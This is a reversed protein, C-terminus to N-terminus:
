ELFNVRFIFEGDNFPIRYICYRAGSDDYPAATLRFLGNEDPLLTLVKATLAGDQYYDECVTLSDAPYSPNLAISFESLTDIATLSGVDYHEGEPYWKAQFSGAQVSTLLNPSASFGVTLHDMQRLRYKWQLTDGQYCSLMVTENAEATVQYYLSEAEEPVTQWIGKLADVGAPVELETLDGSYLTKGTKADDLYLIGYIEEGSTLPDTNHLRTGQTIRVFPLAEDPDSTYVVEAVQYSCPFPAYPNPEPISNPSDSDAILLLLPISLVLATMTWPADALSKRGTPNGTKKELLVLYHVVICNAVLLSLHFIEFPWSWEIFDNRWPNLALWAVLLLHHTIQLLEIKWNGGFLKPVFLRLLTYLVASVGYLLYATADWHFHQTFIAFVLLLVCLDSLVNWIKKLTQANEEVHKRMNADEKLFEDLSVEYLDSLRLISVIDPYSRNNEWNSVTQRSVGIKEAVAEQTLGAQTRKEKLKQGVDM